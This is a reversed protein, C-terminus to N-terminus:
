APSVTDDKERDQKLAHGVEKPVALVKIFSKLNHYLWVLFLVFCHIYIYVSIIIHLSIIFKILFNNRFKKEGHVRRQKFPINCFELLDLRKGSMNDIKM